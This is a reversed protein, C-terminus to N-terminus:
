IVSLKDGIVHGELASELGPVLNEAGHLYYLPDGGSSGDIWVGTDDRLTYHLAVVKGSTITKQETMSPGSGRHTPLKARLGRRQSCRGCRRVGSLPRPAAHPPRSM